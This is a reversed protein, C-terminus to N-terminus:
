NRLTIKELYGQFEDRIRFSSKHPEEGVPACKPNMANFFFRASVDKITVVEIKTYFHGCPLPGESDIRNSWM